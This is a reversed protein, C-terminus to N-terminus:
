GENQGLGYLYLANGVTLSVPTHYVIIMHIVAEPSYSHETSPPSFGLSESTGWLFCGRDMIQGANLVDNVVSGKLNM